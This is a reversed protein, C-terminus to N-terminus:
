CKLGSYYQGPLCTTCNTCELVCTGFELQLGEPCSTCNEAGPGFCTECNANCLTCAGTMTSPYTGNKCRSVCSGDELYYGFQCGDCASYSTCSLCGLRCPLCITADPSLFYGDPCDTIVIRCTGNAATYGPNCVVCASDSCTLCNEPCKVCSDTEKVYGYLQPCQTCDECDVCVGARLTLGAPCTSCYSSNTCSQCTSPCPECKGLLAYTGQPCIMTCITSQLLFLGTKCSACVTLSQCTLCSSPCAKCDTGSYFQYTTCSSPPIEQVCTNASSLMYGPYCQYCNTPSICKVCNDGCPTCGKASNYWAPACENCSQGCDQCTGDVLLKGATCTLCAAASRCTLCPSTCATCVSSSSFFGDPCAPLCQGMYLTSGARCSTCAPLTLRAVCLLCQPPCALCVGM